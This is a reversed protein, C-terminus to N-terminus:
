TGAEFYGCLAAVRGPSAARNAVATLGCECLHGTREGPLGSKKTSRNKKSNSVAM